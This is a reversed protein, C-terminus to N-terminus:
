RTIRLLERLDRLSAGSWDVDPDYRPDAGSLDEPFRFLFAVIGLVRAGTLEHSGGDGVFACQEARLHLKALALLYMRPDPKCFGEQCSFVTTEIRQGLVCSRWLLSPEESADSVVALRVGADRLADLGPLVPGCSDLVSKTFALRVELARGLADASPTAGQRAAIRRITEELSGLQGKVRERFSGSWDKEFVLPDVDLIRAMEHLHVARDRRPAAPVLTGFLDLLVGSFPPHAGRTGSM